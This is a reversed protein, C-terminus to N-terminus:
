YRKTHFSITFQSGVGNVFIYGNPLQWRATENKNYLKNLYQILDNKNAKSQSMSGVEVDVAILRKVYGNSLVVIKCNEFLWFKGRLEAYTETQKIVRYGKAKLKEVFDSARGDIPIGLFELEKVQPKQYPKRLEQVMAVFEDRVKQPLPITATQGNGFNAISFHIEKINDNSFFDLFDSENILVFSEYPINKDKNDTSITMPLTIKKGSDFTIEFKQCNGKNNKFVICPAGIGFNRNPYFQMKFNMSSITLVPHEIVVPKEPQPFWDEALATFLLMIVSIAIFIKKLM